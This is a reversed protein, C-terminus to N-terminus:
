VRIWTTEGNDKHQYPKLGLERNIESSLISLRDEYLERLRKSLHKEANERMTDALDFANSTSGIFIFKRLKHTTADLDDSEYICESANAGMTDIYLATLNNKYNEPLEQYSQYGEIIRNDIEKILNKKIRDM